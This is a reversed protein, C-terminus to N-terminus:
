ILLVKRFLRVPANHGRRFDEMVERLNDRGHGGENCGNGPQNFDHLIFTLVSGGCPAVAGQM